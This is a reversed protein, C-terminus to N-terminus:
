RDAAAACPPDVPVNPAAPVAGLKYKALLRNLVPLTAANMTRWADLTKALADCAGAAAAKLTEAPRGDGSELMALYRALDRNVIGFGPAASTGDQIAAIQDDFAKAAGAAGAANAPLAKQRDAVAKRVSAAQVYADYSATLGSAITRAMGSQEDFEAQSVRVRPDPKVTLPQRYTTGGVTLAVVYQGPAVLPGEPQDRPTEGPVAHNALTYEVYTLLSGFYGFPLVKPSPYRLNWVFRHMGAAKPVVAPPAFWYDPVNSLLAPPPPPASTYQRVLSGDGGFVAITADGSAPSKLYYDIIAGDPPNQGVPTEPPLPTDQNMDWRVRVAPQPTFLHVDSAVVAADIERLPGVDDLIWLSRGYTAVVLDSGHVELDRVSSAPLNLQLSQWRDGDDFSVYVGTDTGAYLLGSRVPDERVVRVIASVDLGAAITRWSKGGDHTRYIFPHADNPQSVAAYAALADHRGAEITQVTAAAPIDPPTVDSWTAGDETFRIIGNNTGAWMAGRRVASPSLTFVAADAPAGSAPPPRNKAETLDTSIAEWHMGGDTTKMVRETALYLTHPDQPSFTLPLMQATRDRPGPVFVHRIQSTRRDFRVITRYWGESYVINPDAPDVAIFGWEFGGPSFWDRDSIAGFDSRSPVAVTGSDQQAAYVRYPFAEDTSVHYLQATPQNYWSSWTRGGNVSVIGGQDVGALLRNPNRADVWMLRFDDGSPAGALATFTRGGDASRYLATQTVYLVAPNGPDAIVGIGAIRADPTSREWTDGGDESRFLGARLNVYVRRGGTGAAIAIAQRGAGSQPLGRAGVPMWTTGQDTSKYITLGGGATGSGAAAGRGDANRAIAAYVVRPDDLAAVLSAAGGADAKYLVKNWTAGGDTSKFVGRDAGSTRDGIAAVLIVDPNAPDILIEGIVHTARLGVNIWTAGADISKYVGNGQMQEGTGVYVINPSSPSVAVAGISPVREADFIPKWVQGADTTKWVGGQPTGIYYTNPDPDIAGASVRGGRFPGILRWHLDSFLAPSLGQSFAPHSSTWLLTVFGLLKLTRV